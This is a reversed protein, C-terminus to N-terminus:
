KLDEVTVRSPTDKGAVIGQASIAISKIIETMNALNLTGIEDDAKHYHPENDMKSTSITHAPVGLRALTANDSRYFLNQTTYPDPYFKFSSGKLNEQLIDGFSTKEYGTIYASNDGWKSDTGIMEINFMAAVKDAQLQRSFYTAGFGGSEEATFAVFILTRENNNLAKYYKALQLVATVGSADDNAGNYLSDGTANPRGFGLHDYHAGFIVYEDKKSKGPLIGVINALKQKELRQRIDFSYGSEGTGSTLVYVQSYESPFKASRFRKLGNFSRSQATDVLVLLNEKARALPSFKARFDDTAGITVIRYGSQPSLVLSAKSTMAVINAAPIEKGDITGTASLLTPVLMTFSQRFKCTGKMKKLGMAKMESRIFAAAKEIGPTFIKRGMMDDSSLTREIRETEGPTILDDIKQGSALIFLSGFAVLLFIKKM